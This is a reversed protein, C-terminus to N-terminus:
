LLRNKGAGIAEPEQVEDQDEVLNFFAWRRFFNPCSYAYAHIKLYLLEVM